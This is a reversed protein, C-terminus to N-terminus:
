WFPINVPGGVGLMLGSGHVLSYIPLALNLAAIGEQGMGASVFFTDALIYCSIGLMGLVNLIIYKFLERKINKGNM